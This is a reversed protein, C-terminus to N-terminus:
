ISLHNYFWNLIETCSIIGCFKRRVDIVALCSLNNQVMQAAAKVIGTNRSIPAANKHVLSDITKDLILGKEEFVALRAPELLEAIYDLADYQSLVGESKAEKNLVPINQVATALFVCTAKAVDDQPCLCLVHEAMIESVDAPTQFIQDLLPDSPRAKEDVQSFLRLLATCCVQGVLKDDQEVGVVQTFDRLMVSLVQKVDSWPGVTQPHPILIQRVHSNLMQNLIAIDKRLLAPFLSRLMDKVCVRGVLKLGDRSEQERVVLISDARQERFVNMAELITSGERLFVPNSQMLDQVWCSHNTAAEAPRSVNQTLGAENNDPTTKCHM